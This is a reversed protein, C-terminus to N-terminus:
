PKCDYHLTEIFNTPLPHENWAKHIVMAAGLASAQPVSAAYVKCSSFARAMMHMFIKNKSFGGDVYLEFISNSQIWQISKKQIRVLDYILIHYAMEAHDFDLWNRKEFGSRILDQPGLYSLDDNLGQYDLYDTTFSFSHFHKVECHFHIALKEIHEQHEHGLFLRSAKVPKGQYSLYHLCDQQLDHLTLSTENFPNLAICWTGTSLLLFPHDICLLYPILSASSDHLGNGVIIKKNEIEIITSQDTPQIDPFVLDLREEYVWAHYKKQNFDWLMTHCGISTMETCPSKSFLYGIFQPLHLAYKVKAFVTPLQHKIRFLQLGSNLLDLAPSNTELAIQEASGYTQYFLTKIGQDIPKLYNYIPTLPRGTDDVLVFSAGYASFNIAKVNFELHQVIGHIQDKCWSCLTDIDECPFGDEDKIENLTQNHEYVINYGQDFVVIKKNTKGIDLIAIHSSM